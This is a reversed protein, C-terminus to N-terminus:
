LGLLDRCYGTIRQCEFKGMHNRPINEAIVLKFPWGRVAPRIDARISEDAGDGAIMVIFWDEGHDSVVTVFADDVRALERLESEMAPASFKEGRFILRDDVRGDIFLRGDALVYGTDGPYFWGDRFINPTKAQWYDEVMCPTRIAIIGSEGAPLVRGDEAVVNLEVDQSLYGAFHPSASMDRLSALAVGSVETSGYISRVEVCLTELALAVTNPEVRSGTTTVIRTQKDEFIFGRTSTVVSHLM